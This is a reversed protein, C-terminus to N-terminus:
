ATASCANWTSREEAAEKRIAAISKEEQALFQCTTSWFEEDVEGWLELGLVVFTREPQQKPRAKGQSKDPMTGECVYFSLLEDQCLVVEQFCPVKQGIGLTIVHPCNGFGDELSWVCAKVHVRRHDLGVVLVEERVEDAALHKGVM